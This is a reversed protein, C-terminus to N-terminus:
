DGRATRKAARKRQGSTPFTRGEAAAKGKARAAARPSMSGLSAKSAKVRDKRVKAMYLGLSLNNTSTGNGANWSAYFGLM